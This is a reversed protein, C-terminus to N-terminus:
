DEGGLARYYQEVLQRYRSPYKARISQLIREREDPPLKGWMEGPSARPAEHLDGIRGAGEPADSESKPDGRVSRPPTQQQQGPKGSGGSQSEQQKHQEILRDLMAVIELQRKQVEDGADSVDLRDAVFDMVTAVEGLTGRERRQIELLLQEAGVRVAEPADAFHTRLAALTETAEKFQLNRAECFARVFWLHPAYPTHATYKERGADLPALAAQVERYRGLAALARVHYYTANAALFADDHARLPELLRVVAAPNDDDFAELAERYRPYLVALADPVFSEDLRGRYTSEWGELITASAIAREDTLTRVYRLFSENLRDIRRSDPQGDQGPASAALAALTGGLAVITRM